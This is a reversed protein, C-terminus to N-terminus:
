ATWVICPVLCLANIMSPFLSMSERMPILMGRLTGADLAICLRHKLVTIVLWPVVVVSPLLM